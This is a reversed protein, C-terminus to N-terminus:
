TRSWPFSRSCSSSSSAPRGCPTSRCTTANPSSHSIRVISRSRRASPKRSAASSRSGGGSAASTSRTTASRSRCRDPSRAREGARLRPHRGYGDRLGRLGPLARADHVRPQVEVRRGRQPLQTRDRLRTRARRGVPAEPVARALDAPAPGHRPGPPADRVAAGDRWGRDDAPGADRGRRVRTTWTPASRGPDDRARRRVRSGRSRHRSAPRTPAAPARPGQAGHRKEPLPRLAKTLMVLRDVFM